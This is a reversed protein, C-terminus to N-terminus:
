THRRKKKFIRSPKFWTPKVMFYFKKVKELLTLKEFFSYKYKVFQDDVNLSSAGDTAYYAITRPVFHKKLQHQHFCKIIFQADANYRFKLEFKGVLRFLDRRVFIAQHCIFDNKLDNLVVEKGFTRDYDGWQVVGYVIDPKQRSIEDSIDQLVNEDFLYDDHGLFYVWQGKALDVAKNMADYIGADAESVLTIRGDEFATIKALTGDTSQGDLILYEFAKFKQALVSSVCRDILNEGNRVVTIISFFPDDKTM